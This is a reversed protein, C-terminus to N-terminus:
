PRLFGHLNRSIDKLQRITYIQWFVTSTSSAIFSKPQVLVNRSLGAKSSGIPPGSLTSSKVKRTEQERIEFILSLFLFCSRLRRSRMLSLNKRIILKPLCINYQLVNPIYLIFYKPEVIYITNFLVNSQKLGM